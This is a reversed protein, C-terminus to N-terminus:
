SPSPRAEAAEHNVKARALLGRVFERVRLDSKQQSLRTRIKERCEDLGEDRAAERSELRLVHFGLPTEVINSTGNPGLSFAAVELEPPLQGRSFTGMLGGEGAEPARSRSRALAEFSKPDKQLRRRVDRAENQTPVLIQRLLAREPVRFEEAHERHYAEIEEETVEPPPVAAALLKHVAADQEDLTSSAALLGQARAELILVREELFPELLAARVPPAVEGGGRAELNKVHRDFDSRRVVQDGLTLIVPDSSTARQCSLAFLATAVLLSPKRSM